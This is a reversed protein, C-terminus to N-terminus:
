RESYEAHSILKNWDTRKIAATAPRCSPVKKGSLGRLELKQWTMGLETWHLQQRGGLPWWLHWTWLTKLKFFNSVIANRSKNQHRDKCKSLRSLARFIAIKLESSYNRNLKFHQQQKRLIKTLIIEGSLRAAVFAFKTSPETFIQCLLKQNFNMFIVEATGM